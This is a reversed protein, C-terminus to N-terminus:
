GLGPSSRLARGIGYSVAGVLEDLEAESICLPPMLIIVDGLPRVFVGKERAALCSRWGMREAAPFSRKTARDAVLEIGVMLGQQRVEGVNPHEAFAAGLLRRLREARARVREIVPEKEFIDLSALAAACAIPNGAYTHGHFLTKEYHGADYFARYVKETALTASLPLYGGTIGKGLVMIDPTVGELDCAFMAGTKGFGTAVEDAILLVDHRDCIERLRKLHGEPAVIIGAAGQVRPEVIVAAVEKGREALLRELATACTLDCATRAACASCRYRHPSPIRLPEVLLSEYPKRFIGDAGVSSAGLTDGHYAMDLSVIRTREPLGANGWYQVAMKLAVEVASAGDSSFFSWRLGKPVHQLLREALEMAPTHSVGLLTSHQLREAQRKIAEVIRPEGHGHVITWLSAVGDLYEKGDKAVLRTGHAREIVLKPEADFRAMQTFPHWIASHRPPQSPM